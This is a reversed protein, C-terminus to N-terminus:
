PTPATPARRLLSGGQGAAWLTGDPLGWIGKLGAPGVLRPDPGADPSGGLLYLRSVGAAADDFMAWVGTPAAAVLAVPQTSAGLEQTLTLNNNTAKVVHGSALLFHVDNPGTGAVAVYPGNIGVVNSPFTPPGVWSGNMWHSIGSGVAWLDDPAAAWIANVTNVLGGQSITVDRAIWDQGDWHLVTNAGRAIWVDNPGTGSIARMRSGAPDGAPQKDTAWPGGWSALRHIRNDGGIVWVQGPGPVWLDVIPGGFQEATRAVQWSKGDGHLLGGGVVAWLDDPGSGTVRTADEGSLLWAPLRSQWTEGNWHAATGLAGLAWLDDPAWGRLTRTADPAPAPLSTSVGGSALLSVAHADNMFGVRDAGVPFLSEARDSILVGPDVGNSHFLRGQALSWVDSRGIGAMQEAPRAEVRAWASGDFHYIGGTGSLDLLSGAWVDNCASGWVTRFGGANIWVDSPTQAAVWNQGDWRSALPGVAWIDKPACGWLADVVRGGPDATIGIRSWAQGDWHYPGARGGVWVDNPATAWIAALTSTPSPITSLKGGAVRVITGAAGVLWLDDAAVKFADVLRDGSPLPHTWCWGDVTCVPPLDPPPVPPGEPGRDVLADAGGDSGVDGGGDPGIEAGAEIVPAAGDRSVRGVLRPGCGLSAVSTGCVVLGLSIAAVRRM